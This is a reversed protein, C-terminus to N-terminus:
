YFYENKAVVNWAADILDEVDGDTLKASLPQEDASSLHEHLQPFRVAEM